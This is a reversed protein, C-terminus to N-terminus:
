SYSNEDWKEVRNRLSNSHSKVRHARKYVIYVLWLSLLFAIKLIQYQTM